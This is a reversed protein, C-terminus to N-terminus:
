DSEGILTFAAWDRPNPYQKQTTLMAQRLAIAKNSTQQWQRYFETMLLETSADSVAWLSVVISPIGAAILSRSLGVVGDGTIEGLGTDCASLVALEAQMGWASLALIENASILGNDPLWLKGGSFNLRVDVGTKNLLASFSATQADPPAVVAIASQEGDNENLISHTALHIIRVQRMAQLITQKTAQSGILPQTNLLQAIAKAEQETGPLESLAMPMPSPNGVVLAGQGFSQQQKIRHTLELIQISPATLLTYREILYRGQPDVLAPFPVYALDSDTIFIIRDSAQLPLLDSIPQILIQYFLKLGTHQEDLGLNNRLDAVLDDFLLHHQRLLPSLDVQRFAIEGTPKIVWILLKTTAQLHSKFASKFSQLQSLCEHHFPQNVISYEVLTAQQRQAIQQLQAITPLSITRQTPPAHAALLRLLATTRGREAIELAANPQNQAVLVQQLSKSIQHQAELKARNQEDAIQAEFVNSQEPQRTVVESTTLASRLTTEAQSLKGAQFLAEGLDGLTQWQEDGAMITSAQQYTLIARDFEKLCSYTNGLEKLLLFEQYRDGRQHALQLRQQRSEVMGKVNGAQSYVRDLDALVTDASQIDQTQQFLTLAQKLSQIAAAFQQQKAQELGQHQLTQAASQPSQSQASGPLTTLQLIVSAELPTTFLLSAGLQILASLPQSRRSM